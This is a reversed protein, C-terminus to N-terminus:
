FLASISSDAAIATAIAEYMAETFHLKDARYYTTNSPTIGLTTVIFDDLDFLVDFDVGEGARILTNLDGRATEKTGDWSADDRPPVTMVVTVASDASLYSAGLATQISAYITAAATGSALDNTGVLLFNIIGDYYNADPRQWYGFEDYRTTMLAATAGYRATIYHGADSFGGSKSRLKNAFPEGVEDDWGVVLSDGYYLAKKIPSGSVPMGLTQACTALRSMVRNFQTKTAGPAVLLGNLHLRGSSYGNNESGIRFETASGVTSNSSADVSAIASGELMSELLSSSRVLGFKGIMRSSSFVRTQATNAHALVSFHTSGEANAFISTYSDTTGSSYGFFGGTFTGMEGMHGVMGIGGALTAGFGGALRTNNSTAENEAVQGEWMLGVSPGSSCYWRHLQVSPIDTTIQSNTEYKVKRRIANLAAARGSVTNDYDIGGFVALERVVSWDGDAKIGVIMANIADKAGDLYTAGDTNEVLDFLAAADTDYGSANVIALRRQMSPGISSSELSGPQWAALVICVLAGLGSFRKLSFRKQMM